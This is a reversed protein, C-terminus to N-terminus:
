ASDSRTSTFTVTLVLASLKHRSQLRLIERNQLVVLRLLNNGEIDFVDISQRRHLHRLRLRQRFRGPASSAPTVRRRLCRALEFVPTQNDQEEIERGHFRVFDVMSDRGGFMIDIRLHLRRVQHRNDRQSTRQQHILVKGRIVRQQLFLQTCEARAAALSELFARRARGLPRRIRTLREGGVIRFVVDEVRVPTQLRQSRHRFLKRM